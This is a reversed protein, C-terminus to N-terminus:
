PFVNEKCYGSAGNNDLHNQCNFQTMDSEIKITGGSTRVQYGLPGPNGSINLGGKLHTNASVSYIAYEDAPNKNSTISGGNFIAFSAYNFVVSSSVVQGVINVRNATLNGGNTITIAHSNQDGILNFTVDDLTVLGGVRFESQLVVGDITLTALGSAEAIRTGALNRNNENFPYNAPNFGGVIRMGYVISLYGTYDGNAVWITKGELAPNEGMSALDSAANDWSTGQGNGSGTKTVFVTNKRYWVTISKTTPNGLADSATVSCPQDVKNLDLNCDVPTQPVDEVSFAIKIKSDSTPYNDRSAIVVKPGTRDLTITQKASSLSWTGAKDLEQVEVGYTGEDSIDLKTSITAVWAGDNIRYQYAAPTAMGGGGSNDGRSTWTWTATTRTQSANITLTPSLPATADRTILVTDKGINGSANPPSSIIISNAGESLNHVASQAVGDITYQVNYSNEKTLTSNNAPNTIVVTPAPVNVNVEANLIRSNGVQDVATLVISNKGSALTIAGSSWNAGAVTINKAGSALGNMIMSAVGTGTDAVQGSLTVTLSTSTAPTPHSTLTIVPGSIDARVLRTGSASWLLARDQEQVSLVNNGEILTLDTLVNATTDKWAGGNLNYRYRGNLGSGAVGDGGSTWGFNAKLAGINALPGTTIAPASPITNDMFLTLTAEGTNGANDYATIVVPLAIGEQMSIAPTTWNTDALIANAAAAVGAKYTVRTIPLPGGVIGTLTLSAISTYHTGSPRPTKITVVPKTVDYRIPFSSVISWNGALDREQVFLTYTTGSVPEAGLVHSTDRTSPADAPFNGDVLRFRFDGSGGAGGTSWTWRPKVNTPSSGSLNPKNPATTDFYVTVSASSEKGAADRALRTIVNRGIVTLEQTTLSDQPNGDVSWEVKVTKKNTYSNDPPNNIVITASSAVLIRREATVENGETDRVWFRVVYVKALNYTFTKASISAVTDDWAGNGDLDYRYSIITGFEQTAVPLFLLSQGVSIVTDPGVVLKPVDDKISVEVSDRKGKDVMSTAIIFAFGAKFPVILGTTPDVTANETSSSTWQISQPAADPSVKATIQRSEGKRYLTLTDQSVKISTVTVPAQITVSLTDAKSTDEVSLVTVSLNGEAIPLLTDGKLTAKSPDSVIFTVAPNAQEPLIDVALIEGAGRVFLQVSEKRFRVQTVRIPESVLIYGSDLISAKNASHAWVKTLGKKLGTFTGDAQLAAVSSDSLRWAVGAGATSPNVNIEFRGPAGNAALYLTDRDLELSVPLKSDAQVKVEFVMVKTTDYGLKATIRASGVSVAVINGVQIAAIAPNDSTWKLETNILNAPTIEIRPLPASQSEYILIILNDKTAIGPNPHVVVVESETKRTNGNYKKEEKYVPVPTGAMWGTISIFIPGGNWGPVAIQDLDSSSQPKRNFINAILNSDADRVEIVISDYKSLADYDHGFSLSNEVQTDQELHCAILLFVLAFLAKLLIPLHIRYAQM